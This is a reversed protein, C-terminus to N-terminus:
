HVQLRREILETGLELSDWQRSEWQFNTALLYVRATAKSFDRPSGRFSFNGDKITGGAAESLSLFTSLQRINIESFTGNADFPLDHGGLTTKAACRIEGGFAAVQIQMDISGKALDAMEASFGEIQVGPELTLDAILARADKLATTGRVDRFTRRLWPQRVIIRQANILGPGLETALFRAGQVRVYDDNCRFFFDSVDADINAPRPLWRSGAGRRRFWSPSHSGAASAREAALDIKGALGKLSLRRFWRNSSGRLLNEWAFEAEAQEIEIRTVAGPGSRYYWHSRYFRIPEFVSGDMAGIFVRGGQRWAEFRLAQRVVFHFVHTETLSVLALM